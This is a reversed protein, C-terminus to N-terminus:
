STTPASSPATRFWRSRKTTSSVPGWSCPAPLRRAQVLKEGVQAVARAHQALGRDGAQDGHHREAERDGGVGGGEADGGAKEEAAEAPLRRLLQDHEPRDVAVVALSAISGRAVVEVPLLRARVQGSDLRPGGPGGIQGASVLRLPDLDRLRRGPEELEETARRDESAAKSGVFRSRAQRHEGVPEELVTEAAVGVGEARREQDFSLRVGDDADHRIM